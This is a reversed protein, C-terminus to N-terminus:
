YVMKSFNNDKLYTKIKSIKDSTKIDEWNETKIAKIAKTIQPISYGSNILFKIWLKRNKNPFEKHKKM